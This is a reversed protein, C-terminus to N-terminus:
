TFIPLFLCVLDKFTKKPEEEVRKVEEVDEEVPAKEAADDAKKTVKESVEPAAAKEEIQLKSLSAEPETAAAAHDTKRRKVTKDKGPM